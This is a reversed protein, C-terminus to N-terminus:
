AGYYTLLSRQAEERKGKFAAWRCSPRCYKQHPRVPEFGDRCTECTRMPGSVVRQSMVEEAKRVWPEVQSM